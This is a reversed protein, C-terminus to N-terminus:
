LSMSTTTSSCCRKPTSCRATKLSFLLCGPHAPSSLSVWEECRPRLTIRLNLRRSAPRVVARVHSFQSVDDKRVPIRHILRCPFTERGSLRVQDKGQDFLRVFHFEFRHCLFGRPQAARRKAGKTHTDKMPLQWRCFFFRDHSFNRRCSNSKSMAVEIMSTPISIGFAVIM